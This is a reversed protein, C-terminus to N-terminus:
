MNELYKELKIEQNAIGLKKAIRYRKSKLGDKSLGLLTNQKEYPLGFRLLCCYDLDSDTLNLEKLKAYYEPHLKSVARRLQEWDKDSLAPGEFMKDISNKFKENKDNAVVPLETILKLKSFLLAKDLLFNKTMEFEEEKAKLAIANKENELRQTELEKKINKRQYSLRQFAAFLITVLALLSIIWITKRQSDKKLENSINVAQEWRYKRDVEYLEQVRDAKRLSDAIAHSRELYFLAKEADGRRKELNYCTYLVTSKLRTNDSSSLLSDLFSRAKDYEKQEMYNNALALLGSTKYQPSLNISKHIYAEAQPLNKQRLYIMGWYSAISSQVVSDNLAIGMAEAKSIWEIAEKMQGSTLYTRSIDRYAILQSRHNGAKSFCNAARLYYDRALSKDATNRFIDAAYSAIYGTLNHDESQEADALAEIYVPIAAEKNKKRNLSRGYYYGSRARDLPEAKKQFYVTTRRMLATDVDIPRKLSDRLTANLICWEALQKENLLLPNVETELLNLASDPHSIGIERIDSLQKDNTHDTCSVCLLMVCAIPLFLRRSLKQKERIMIM